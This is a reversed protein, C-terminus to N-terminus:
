IHHITCGYMPEDYTLKPKQPLLSWRDVDHASHPEPRFHRGSAFKECISCFSLLLGVKGVMLLIRQSIPFVLSLTTRNIMRQLKLICKLPASPLLLTCIVRAHLCVPCPHQTQAFVCKLPAPQPLDIRHLNGKRVHTAPM